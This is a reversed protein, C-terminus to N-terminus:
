EEEKGDDEDKGHTKLKSGFVLEAEVISPEVSTRASPKPFAVRIYLCAANDLKHKKLGETHKKNTNCYTDSLFRRCLERFFLSHGVLIMRNEKSYKLFSWLEDFRTTLMGKSDGHSTGTWWASDCDNYNIDVMYGEATKRDDQYSEAVLQELVRTKIGEGVEQGVTDLSLARNKKERLNRYLTLPHANSLNPHSFCTLLATQTARTLPSAVVREASLFNQEASTMDSKAGENAKKWKGNFTLAQEIGVTSLPHDYGLLGGVNTHETAENWKSEGHRILWFEKEITFAEDKKRNPMCSELNQLAGITITVPENPKAPKVKTDMELVFDAPNKVSHKRLDSVPISCHGIPDDKSLDDHDLLLVRLIDTDAPKCAFAAFSNWTPHLSDKRVQTKFEGSCPAGEQDVIQLKAYCDSLSGTDLNPVNTCKGVFIVFEGQERKNAISKSSLAMGAGANPNSGCIGM